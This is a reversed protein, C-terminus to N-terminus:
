VIVHRPSNAQSIILLGFDSLTREIQPFKFRAEKPLQQIFDLFRPTYSNQITNGQFLMTQSFDSRMDNRCVAQVRFLYLIDPSVHSIIAKLDKDSDKTFTKEKEDENKSWSYSIMYNMIPPHYIIEPQNWTVLLATRNVLKVKMNVPPTSCVKSAETGLPNEFMSTSLQNWADKVASKSVIRNNLRQQPRFNNRLYEVSKVHDQQETTFISYFAELCTRLCPPALAVLGARNKSSAAGQKQVGCHPLVENKHGMARRYDTKMGQPM